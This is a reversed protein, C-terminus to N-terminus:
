KALFAASVASGDSKMVLSDKHLDFAMDGDDHYLVMEYVKGAEMGRLLTITVSQRTGATLREAGLIWGRSDRVAVWGLKSLTVSSAIAVKIAAQDAASVNDGEATTSKNTNANAASTDSGSSTDVDTADEEDGTLSIGSATDASDKNLSSETSSRQGAVMMAGGILVVLVLVGIIVQYIRESM